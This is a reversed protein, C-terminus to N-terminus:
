DAPLRFLRLANQATARAVTDVPVGRIGAIREIILPLYSPENRRGRHQQPALFPSDTEVLLKDLPVSRAVTVADAARPYTIPGALSVLFGLENYRDALAADGSFRHMVGLEGHRDCSNVWDELVPLLEEHAARCHIVVPMDLGAALELQRRFIELQRERPSNKHYFDLGIEGIAVVRDEAVLEGVWELSDDAATIDNPHLGVATFLGPYSRALALSARSSSRDTGMNVIIGVGSDKARKIVEDRDGDFESMYFHAHSDVMM